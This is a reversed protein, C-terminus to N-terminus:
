LFYNFYKNPFINLRNFKSTLIGIINLSSYSQRIKNKTCYLMVYNQFDVDSCLYTLLNDYM